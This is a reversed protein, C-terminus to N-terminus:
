RPLWLYTSISYAALMALGFGNVQRMIPKTLDMYRGLQGMLDLTTAWQSFPWILLARAAGYVAFLLMGLVPSGYLAAAFWVIYYSATPIFTTFGAGLLLGFLGATVYPHFKYRWYAPVQRRREPHPFSVIRLEHLAYAAALLGVFIPVYRRYSTLPLLSGLSGTVAGVLGGGVIGGLTYIFAAVRWSLPSDRYVVPSITGVM